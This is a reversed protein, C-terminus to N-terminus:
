GKWNLSSGVMGCGIVLYFWKTINPTPQPKHGFNKYERRQEFKFQYVASVPVRSLALSHAVPRRSVLLGCHRIM